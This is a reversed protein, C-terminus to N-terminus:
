VLHNTKNLSAAISNVPNILCLAGAAGLCLTDHHEPITCSCYKRSDTHQIGIAVVSQVKVFGSYRCRCQSKQCSTCHMTREWLWTECLTDLAASNARVLSVLM